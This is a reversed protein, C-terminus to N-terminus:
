NRRSAATSSVSRCRSGPWWGTTSSSRWTSPCAGGRRSGPAGGGASAAVSKLVRIVRRPADQEVVGACEVLFVFPQASGDMIPVEPGDLEIVANDIGCGALAAMLHEVTAVTVGDGDGLTTCMRTDVVYDWLAPIVAGGADTRRFVIGSDAEAPKLTMSVEAGSHLAVGTCDISSKLTRQRVTKAPDTADAKKGRKGSQENKSFHM